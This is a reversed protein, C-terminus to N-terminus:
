PSSKRTWTASYSVVDNQWLHGSTSASGLRDLSCYLSTSNSLAGAKGVGSAARSQKKAACRYGASDRSSFTMPRSRSTESGGTQSCRSPNTRTCLIVGFRDLVSPTGSKM